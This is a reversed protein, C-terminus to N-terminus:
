IIGIYQLVGISNKHAPDWGAVPDSIATGAISIEIQDNLKGASELGHERALNQLFRQSNLLGFFHCCIKQRGGKSGIRTQLM